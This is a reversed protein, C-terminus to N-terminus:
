PMAPLNPMMLALSIMSRLGVSALPRARWGPEATLIGGQFASQPSPTTMLPAGGPAGGAAPTGMGREMSGLSFLSLTNRMYEMGAVVREEHMRAKMFTISRKLRRQTSMRQSGGRM